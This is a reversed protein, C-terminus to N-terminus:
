VYRMYFQFIFRSLIILHMIVCLQVSLHSVSRNCFTTSYRCTLDDNGSITCYRVM